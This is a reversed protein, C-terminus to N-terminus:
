KEKTFYAYGVCGPGGHTGVVAGLDCHLAHSVDQFRSVYAEFEAMLDPRNSHGFCYPLDPDLPEEKLREYMWRYAAKQGRVKGVNTIIGNRISIMPNIGLVTGIVGAAGSIRGGMVLYKLSGVSAYFRLRKKVTDLTDAIDHASYGRDRLIVAEEVLMGIGFTVSGSDVVYMQKANLLDAALMASQYTGSLASSLTVMVVSDGVSLYPKVADEIMAPNLQSTTPLEKAAELKQYFTPIDIDIGDRYSDKGFHVTLPLVDVGLAAARAPNLDSTSDTIIHVM